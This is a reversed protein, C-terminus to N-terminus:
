IYRLSDHGGVTKPILELFVFLTSKGLDFFGYLKVCGELIDAIMAMKLVERDVIIIRQIEILQGVRFYRNSFVALWLLEGLYVYGNSIYGSEYM